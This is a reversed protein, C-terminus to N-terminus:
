FTRMAKKIAHMPCWLSSQSRVMIGLADRTFLSPRGSEQTRLYAHKTMCLMFMGQQM